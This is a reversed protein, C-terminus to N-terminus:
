FMEKPVSQTQSFNQDQFSYPFPIKFIRSEIGQTTLTYSFYHKKQKKAWFGMLFAYNWFDKQGPINRGM